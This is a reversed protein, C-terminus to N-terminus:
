PMKSDTVREREREGQRLHLGSMCIRGGDRPCFTLSVGEHRDSELRISQIIIQSGMYNHTHTHALRRSNSGGSGGICKMIM